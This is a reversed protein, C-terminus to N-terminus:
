HTKFKSKKREADSEKFQQIYSFIMDKSYESLKFDGLDDLDDMLGVHYSAKILHNEYMEPILQHIMEAKSDPLLINKIPAFCTIHNTDVTVYHEFVENVGEPSSELELFILKKKLRLLQKLYGTFDNGIVSEKTTLSYYRNNQIFLLHPIGEPSILLLYSATKDLEFFKQPQIVKPM